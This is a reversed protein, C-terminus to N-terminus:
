RVRDIVHQPTGITSHFPWEGGSEFAGISDFVQIAGIGRGTKPM